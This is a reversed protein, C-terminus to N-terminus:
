DNPRVCTLGGGAKYMMDQYVMQTAIPFASEIRQVSKGARQLEFVPTTGAVIPVTFSTMGATTVDRTQVNTGQTIVLRGPEKLFALLEVQDSAPGGQVQIAGATQKSADYTADTRQKRHFYYLADRVIAPKQGTKHWTVYYAALDVVAFGRERSPSMWSETYDNWTTLSVWEANGEIAKEFQARFAASNQAEWYRMIGAANENNKFRVDELAVPSMWIRGRSHVEVSCKRQTEASSVTRGGWSSYGHVLDNWETLGTGNWSGFIPVFAVPTGAAAMRDRLTTWFSIPQREPNYSSLVIRGDPLKFVSPHKAVASLTTFLDDTSAGATTSFDPSLLIRFAPDVAQAAALMTTLQNQRADSSVHDPHEYVFGDLGAAIAYKVERQFDLQKWNAEPRVPRSLPRDRVYGGFPAYVGGSGNPDLWNKAWTDVAPDKNDISIPFPPYYFAFAKRASGRLTTLSPQDFPYCGATAPETGAGPSTGGGGDEPNGGDAGSGGTGGEGAGDPGPTESSSSANTSCGAALLLLAVALLSRRHIL